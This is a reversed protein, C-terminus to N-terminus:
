PSLGPLEVVDAPDPARVPVAEGWDDVRLDASAGEIDFLLRRMLDEDDVWLDYALMPPMGVPSPEVEAERALARAMEETDVELRFHDMPEGDVDQVGVFTVSETGAEWAQWTSELDVADVLAESGSLGFDEPRLQVFQGDTIGPVAMYLRDEVLVVQVSGVGPLAMEVDMAPTDARLDAAGAMTLAQGELDVELTLEFSGLREAGPSRLREMLEGTAITSGPELSPAGSEGTQGGAAPETVEPVDAGGGCGTLALALAAAAGSARWPHTPTRM